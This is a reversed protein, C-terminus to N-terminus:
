RRWKEAINSLHQLFLRLFEDDEVLLRPIETRKVAVGGNPTMIVMVMERHEPPLAELYERYASALQHRMENSFAAAMRVLREFAAHPRSSDGTM